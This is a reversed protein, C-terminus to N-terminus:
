VGNRMDSNSGGLPDPQRELLDAGLEGLKRGVPAGVRRSQDRREAVHVDRSAECSELQVRAM